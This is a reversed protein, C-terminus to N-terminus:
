SLSQSSRRLAVDDDEKLEGGGRLFNKLYPRRCLYTRKAGQFNELYSRHYPNARM